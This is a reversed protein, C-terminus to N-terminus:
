HQQQCKGGEGEAECHLEIKGFAVLHVTEYSGLKHKLVGAAVAVALDINLKRKCSECGCIAVSQKKKKWTTHSLRPPKNHM